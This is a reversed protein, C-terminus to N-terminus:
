NYYDNYIFNNFNFLLVSILEWELNTLRFEKMLRIDIILIIKM